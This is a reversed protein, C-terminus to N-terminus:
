GGFAGLNWRAALLWSRQPQEGKAAPELNLPLGGGHTHAQLSLIPALAERSCPGWNLSPGDPRLHSEPLFWQSSSPAVQPDRPAMKPAMKPAVQSGSPAVKAAMKPAMQTAMPLQQSGSTVVPAHFQHIKWLFTAFPQRPLEVQQNGVSISCFAAKPDSVRSRKNM